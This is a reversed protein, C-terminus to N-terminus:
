DSTGMDTTPALSGVNVNFSEEKNEKKNQIKENLTSMLKWDYEFKKSKQCIFTSSNSVYDNNTEQFNSLM